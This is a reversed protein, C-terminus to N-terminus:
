DFLGGGEEGNGEFSSGSDFDQIIDGDQRRTFIYISDRWFVTQEDINNDFIDYITEDDITWKFGNKSAEQLLNIIDFNRRTVALYFCANINNKNILTNVTHFLLPLITVQEKSYLLDAGIIVDFGNTYKNNIADLTPGPGWWLQSCEVSLGNAICNDNLMPILEEEGDTLVIHGGNERGRDHNYTQILKSVAIGCLGIGSGLEIINRSENEVTGVFRDLNSQCYDSMNYAGFWIALGTLNLNTAYYDDPKSSKISVEIDQTGNNGNYKMVHKVVCDSSSLESM